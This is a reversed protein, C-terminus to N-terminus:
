PSNFNPLNFKAARNKELIRKKMTGHLVQKQSGIMM